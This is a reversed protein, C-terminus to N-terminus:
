LNDLRGEFDQRHVVKLPDFVTAWGDDAAGEELM